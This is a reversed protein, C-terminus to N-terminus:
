EVNITNNMNIILTVLGQETSFEIASNLIKKIKINMKLYSVKIKGKNGFNDSHHKMFRYSYKKEPEDGGTTVQRCM